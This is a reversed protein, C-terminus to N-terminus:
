RYELCRVKVDIATPGHIQVLAKRAAQYPSESSHNNQRRSRSGVQQKEQARRGTRNVQHPATATSGLYKKAGITIKVGNGFRVPYKFGFGPGPAKLFAIDMARFSIKITEVFSALNREYTVDMIFRPDSLPAKARVQLVSDGDARVMYKVCDVFKVDLRMVVPTTNPGRYRLDIIPKLKFIPLVALTQKLRLRSNRPNDTLRLYLDISIKKWDRWTLTSPKPEKRTKNEEKLVNSEKQDLLDEDHNILTHRRENVRQEDLIKNQIRISSMFRSLFRKTNESLQLLSVRRHETNTSAPGKKTFLGTLWDVIGSPPPKPTIPRTNGQDTKSHLQAPLEPRIGATTPFSSSSNSTDKLSDTNEASEDLKDSPTNTAPLTSGSGGSSAVPIVTALRPPRLPCVHSFNSNKRLAAHSRFFPATLISTTRTQGTSSKNQLNHAAHPAVASPRDYVGFSVMPALYTQM